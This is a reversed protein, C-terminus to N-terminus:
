NLRARFAAFRGDKQAADFGARIKEVVDSPVSKSALAWFQTKLIIPGVVLSKEDVSESKIVYRGLSTTTFWADGRGVILKKLNLGESPSTDIDTIGNARLLAAPAGNDVAVFRKLGKAQEFSAVVPAGAKSIFIFGEDGGSIESLWQYKDERPPTRALFVAVAPTEELLQVMRPLPLGQPAFDVNVSKLVQAVYEFGPGYLAGNETVGSYPLSEFGFLKLPDAALSVSAYLNPMLFLGFLYAMKKRIKMKRLREYINNGKFKLM